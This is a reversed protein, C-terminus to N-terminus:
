LSDLQLPPPPSRPRKRLQRQHYKPNIGPFRVHKVVIGRRIAMSVTFEEADDEIFDIAQPYCNIYPDDDFCSDTPREIRELISAWYHKIPSKKDCIGPFTKFIPYFADRFQLTDHVEFLLIDFIIEWINSELMEFLTYRHITKTKNQSAMIHIYQTNSFTILHKQYKLIAKIPNNHM